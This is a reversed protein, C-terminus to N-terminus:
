YVFPERVQCNQPRCGFRRHAKLHAMEQEVEKLSSQLPFHYLYCVFGKTATVTFLRRGIKGEM